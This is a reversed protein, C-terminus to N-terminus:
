GVVMEDVKMWPAGNDVMVRQGAKGCLGPDGIELNNAVLSIRKLVEMTRGSITPSKVIGKREGDEIIYGHTAGFTFNGEKTSVQGGKFGEIFIGNDVSRILEDEDAEGNEFYTNSMRVRPRKNYSQARGNGTPKVDMRSATERSHLFNKLVGKEIIKTKEAEVGEDDFRYSGFRNELGPNDVINVHESAIRNGKEGSFISDGSLVIDAESAHGVAEHAFLGGIRDGLIVPMRRSPSKGAELLKDSMEGVEKGKRIPDQYSLHGFGKKTAIRDKYSELRDGKKATSSLYVLLFIQEREIFSGESNLFMEKGEFDQYTVQSSKINDSSFRINREADEMLALKQDLTVESPLIGEDNTLKKDVIDMEELGFKTTDSIKSLTKAAKLAEKARRELNDINNTSSFGWSGEYFVRIGIGKQSSSEIEEVKDDKVNISESVGEGYRIDAYDAGEDVLKKVNKDLKSRM